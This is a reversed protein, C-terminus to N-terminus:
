KKNWDESIDSLKKKFDMWDSETTNDDINILLTEKVTFEIGKDSIKECWVHKEECAEETKGNKKDEPKVCTNYLEKRLEVVDMKNNDKERIEDIELYKWENGNTYIVRGYWLLEGILEGYDTAKMDAETLAYCIDDISVIYRKNISIYFSEQEIIDKLVMPNKASSEIYWNDTSIDSFDITLENKGEKTSFSIKDSVNFNNLKYDEGKFIYVDKKQEENNEKIKELITISETAERSKRIQFQKGCYENLLEREINLAKYYRYKASPSPKICVVSGGSIIKIKGKVDLLSTEQQKAEVCCYLKDIAADYQYEEGARFEKDLIAIDPFAAYGMLLERGDAEKKSVAGAVSRVSYKNNLGAERLLMYIYPYLEEEAGYQQKMLDLEEKYEALSIM